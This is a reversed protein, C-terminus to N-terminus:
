NRRASASARRDDADMPSTFNERGNYINVMKSLPRNATSTIVFSPAGQNRAAWTVWMSPYTLRWCATRVWTRAFNM